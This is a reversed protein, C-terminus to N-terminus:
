SPLADSFDYPTRSAGLLFRLKRCGHGGGGLDPGPTQERGRQRLVRGGAGPLGAEEPDESGEKGLGQLDPEEQLGGGRSSPRRRKGEM